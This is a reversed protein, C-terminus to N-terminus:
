IEIEVAGSGKAKANDIADEVKEMMSEVSDTKNFETIGFNASFALSASAFDNEVREHIREALITAGSAPTNAMIILFSNESLKGFSDQNRIMDNVIIGFRKISDEYRDIENFHVMMISLELKYRQARQFERTFIKDIISKNFADSIPDKELIHKIESAINDMVQTNDSDHSYVLKDDEFEKKYKNIYFMLFFTYLFTSLLVVGIVIAVFMEKYVFTDPISHVMIITLGGKVGGFTMANSWRYPLKYYYVVANMPLLRIVTTLAFIILIEKYYKQILDINFMDVMTIFVVANAFIGIFFAERKYTRFERKTMAPIKDLFSILSKYSSSATSNELECITETSMKKKMEKQLFMKFSMVSAIIALIGAVHFHEAVMFSVIVVLYIIIFQEIPDKLLKMCLYGIYAIAVGVGISLVLVKLLVYNIGIITVSQGSIMPIAVFYFIVLATVDNFLSEGEAYIKLREPLSFKSFISSVTIADTAMLMSFLVVLMGVSFQYEPLIFPTVFVALSISLIVAVFALFFLAWANKKIEDMSLSLIDPLLIIPLMLYLIEDFGEASIYMIDPFLM